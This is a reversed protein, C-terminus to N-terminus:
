PTLYIVYGRFDPSVQIAPLPFHLYNLYHLLSNLFSSDTKFLKQFDIDPSIILVYDGNGHGDLHQVSIGGAVNLFDPWFSKMSKPFYNRVNISLWFTQGEYDDTFFQDNQNVGDIKTFYPSKSPWYSWKFNFDRLFGIQTQLYPYIAGVVDAAMDAPDFGWYPAFGDKVEIGGYVITSLIGGYLLSSEEDLGAWKLGLGFGETFLIAGYFHGLKDLNKAYKDGYSFHFRGTGNNWWATKMRYYFGGLFALSTGGVLAMRSYNINSSVTFTSKISKVSDLSHIHYPSSTNEYNNKQFPDDSAPNGKNDVLIVPSDQAAVFISNTLIILIILYIRTIYKFM